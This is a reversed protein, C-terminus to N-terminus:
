ATVQTTSQGSWSGDPNMYYWIGYANIWGTGMYGAADFWYWKGNLSLWDNVPWSGDRYRYWWGRSDQLWGEFHDLTIGTYSGDPNFLYQVGDIETWGAAMYGASNFWYKIGNIEAWTNVPYNGDTFQFWWGTGDHIWTGLNRGESSSITVDTATNNGSGSDLGVTKELYECIEPSIAHLKDYKTIYCRFCEAYAEAPTYMNVQTEYDINYLEDHYRSYLSTFESQSSFAKYYAIQESLPMGYDPPIRYHKYDECHGIEHILTDRIGNRTDSHICVEAEETSINTIGATYEGLDDNGSPYFYFKVGMASLDNRVSEPLTTYTHVAEQKQASTVQPSALLISGYFDAFSLNSPYALVRLSFALVCATTMLLLRSIRTM